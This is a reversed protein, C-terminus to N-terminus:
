TDSDPMWYTALMTEFDKISCPKRMYANMGARLCKARDDSSANATLAIIIIADGNKPPRILGLKELKRIQKAAEYGNMVPMQCDLFIISPSKQKVYDVAQKGDKAVAVNCGLKKLITLGLQQNMGNDDVLLVDAANPDPTSDSSLNEYPAKSVKRNIPQSNQQQLPLTLLMTTGIDLVSEAEIKGHMLDTLEKCIALGLGTGGFQRTTSSDVQTFKEFLSKLKEAPIGIGTDTVKITVQGSEGLNTWETTIVVCGHTTFKLANATLNTIIQKIRVPDGLLSDPIGNGPNYEIFIGKEAAITTLGGVVESILLDISFPISELTLKGAEIKSIDLIDNIIHLLSNGASQIYNTWIKQELSLNSSALLESFGIVSNMPTRIEHSMTALFEGKAHNAAEAARKAQEAEAEAKKRDYVEKKLADNSKLLETTKRKALSNVRRNTGQLSVVIGVLLCTGLALSAAAITASHTQQTKFDLGRNWGFSFIQDALNVSSTHDFNQPKHLRSERFETGYVYSDDTIRADDYINFRIRNTLTGLIGSLFNETVFPAYSWGIFAERRQAVNDTPMNPQYIPMYILFGPREQGDQVLSIRETMVAEGSDRAKRAATQRNLESATDLGLAARNQEIPEIHTIIYHQFGMEDVAPPNVNPVVKIEFDPIEHARVAKTYEQLEEATFPRIFGLGNIGPYRKEINIYTVYNRWERREMVESNTYYGASAKLADIYVNLRHQVAQQAENSLEIFQTEESEQANQKLAYYVWGSFTWGILFLLAPFLFFERQYCTSITLSTIALAVVFLDFLLINGSFSTATNASGFLFISSVAFAVFGLTTWAAGTTGFWHCGILVIPFALFLLPASTAGNLFIVSYTLGSIFILLVVKTLWEATPRVLRLTILVPAITLAGVADGMWWTMASYWYGQGTAVPEFIHLSAVSISASLLPAILSAVIIWLPAWLRGLLAQYETTILLLTYALYGSATVGISICAATIFQNGAISQSIFAGTFLGFLLRRKGLFISAIVLGFPPWLPSIIQEEGAILLGYQALLVYIIVIVVNGLLHNKQLWQSLPINHLASASMSYM